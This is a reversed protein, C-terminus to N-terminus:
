PLVIYKGNQEGLLPTGSEEPKVRGGTGDMLKKRVRDAKDAPLLATILVKDTYETNETTVEEEGLIYQVRGLDTYDASILFRVGAICTVATCHRLGERVAGGYARVLGGTGLLTGGFYRTVIACCNTLGEGTLVDLMPRGATGSPEGDDSCRTLDGREGLVFASCHHRADWYKKRIEALFAAAEEECAIPRITAIFRSKKEVIEGEGGALLIKSGEM